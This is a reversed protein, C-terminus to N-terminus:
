SLDDAFYETDVTTYERNQWVNIGTYFVATRGVLAEEPTMGQPIQMEDNQILGTVTFL